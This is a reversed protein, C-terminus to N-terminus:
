EVHVVFTLGGLVSDEDFLSDQLAIETVLKGGAQHAHGVRAVATALAVFVNGHRAHGVSVHKGALVIRFVDDAGDLVAHVRHVEAAALHIDGASFKDKGGGLGVEDFVAVHGCGDLAGRQDAVAGVDEGTDGHHAVIQFEVFADAGAAFVSLGDGHADANGCQFYVAQGDAAGGPFIGAAEHLLKFDGMGVSSAVLFWSSFVSRRSIAWSMTRRAIAPPAVAASHTTRSPSSNEVRTRKPCTSVNFSAPEREM